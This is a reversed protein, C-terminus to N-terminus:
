SATTPGEIFDDPQDTTLTGSVEFKHYGGPKFDRTLKWSLFIDDIFYYGNTTDLTTVKLKCAARDYTELLAQTTATDTQILVFTVVGTGNLQIKNSDSLGALNPTWEVMMASEEDLYGVDTFSGGNATGAVNVGLATIPGSYIKTADKAM